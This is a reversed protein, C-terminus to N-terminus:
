KNVVILTRSRGYRPSFLLSFANGPHLSQEIGYPPISFEQYFLGWHGVHQYGTFVEKVCDLAKSIKGPLDGTQIVQQSLVYVPNKSLSSLHSDPGAYIFKDEVFCTFYNCLLSIDIWISTQQLWKDGATEGISINLSFSPFQWFYMHTVAQEGFHSMLVELLKVGQVNTGDQVSTIKQEIIKTLGQKYAPVGGDKQLYEGNHYYKEIISQSEEIFLEKM